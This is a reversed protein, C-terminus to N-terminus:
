PRYEECITGTRGYFVMDVKGTPDGRNKAILIEMPEFLGSSTERNPDYMSERHIFMVTDADQEIAGTDRLDSLIPRKNSRGENERNLQALCIVPVKLTKAMRKLDNSILTMDDARKQTRKAPSILSFHDILICRLGKVKRAAFMIDNVTMRPEESITVPRYSLKTVADLAKKYEDESMKLKLAQSYPVGSERAIRKATLELRTMELSAFYVPNGKKAINEVISLGFTTKGMGPRAGIVYFGGNILGGGLLADLRPFGTELVAKNPNKDLERRYEIWERLMDPTTALKSNARECIAQLESQAMALLEEATGGEMLGGTISDALAQLKRKQSDQRVLEAYAEVNAASPTLSMLEILYATDLKFGDQATQAAV